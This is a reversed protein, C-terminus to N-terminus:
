RRRWDLTLLGGVFVIVLGTFILAEIPIAM